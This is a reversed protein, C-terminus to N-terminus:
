TKGLLLVSACELVFREGGGWVCVCAAEWGWCECVRYHTQDPETPQLESERPDGHGGGAHHTPHQVAAGRPHVPTAAAGDGDGEGRPEERPM